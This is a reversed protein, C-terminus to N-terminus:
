EEEGLTVTATKLSETAYKLVVSFITETTLSKIADGVTGNLIYSAMSQAEKDMILQFKDPLPMEFYIAKSVEVCTQRMNQIEVFTWKRNLRKKIEKDLNFGM